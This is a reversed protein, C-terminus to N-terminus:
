VQGKDLEGTVFSHARHSITDPLADSTFSALPRKVVNVYHPRGLDPYALLLLLSSVHLRDMRHNLKSLYKINVLLRGVTVMRFSDQGFTLIFNM